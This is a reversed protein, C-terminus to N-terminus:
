KSRFTMPYSVSVPGVNPLKPFEIGKVAKVICSAVEPDVGTATADTVVGTTSIEFKTTVTGALRANAVLGQEYCYRFKVVNRKVYRRVIAKDLDSGKTTADGLTVTPAAATRTSGPKKGKSSTTSGSRLGMTSWGATTGGPADAVMSGVIEGDIEVLKGTPRAVGWESTRARGYGVVRLRWTVGNANAVELSVIGTARVQAAMHVVATTDKTKYTVKTCPVAQDFTCTAPTSTLELIEQTSGDILRTDIGGTRRGDFSRFFVHDGDKPLSDRSRFWVIPVVGQQSSTGIRVIVRDPKTVGAVVREGEFATWDGATATAPVDVPLVRSPADAAALHVPLVVGLVLCSRLM